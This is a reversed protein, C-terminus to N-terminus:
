PKKAWIVREILPLYDSWEQRKERTERIVRSIAAAQADLNDIHHLVIGELTKPVVSSGNALEGHHSLILHLLQLRLTEPFDPIQRMKEQALDCGIQLHGLLKGVTTYDVYLDHFMEDLKGLDHLFVGTLLVDHDMEPYLECMTEAVRAMEYCHRVLGGRYEHHWKKAAAAAQFRAVFNADAWFLDILQRLPPNEVKALIAKLANLDKETDEPVFVLDAISYEGEKLPVVQEVHIQLRNQYTNVRGRVNVVDGLEFMRSTETANNWMIGGVDGTKDKFVMGLFAAGDQKNRLDKRIAVYYDNVFDGEQLANVYQKKM